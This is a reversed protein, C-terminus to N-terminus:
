VMAIFNYIWITDINESAVDLIQAHSTTHSETSVLMIYCSHFIM